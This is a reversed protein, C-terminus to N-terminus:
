AFTMPASANIGQVMCQRQPDLCNIQWSHTLQWKENIGSKGQREGRMSWMYSREIYDTDLLFLTDSSSTSDAISMENEPMFEIVGFDSIFVNSSGESTRPGRGGDTRDSIETAIRATSSFSYESWLRNIPGRNLGKLTTKKGVRTWRAQVADRLKTETLAGATVTDYTWAPITNGTAPYKDIGGGTITGASNVQQVRCDTTGLKNNTWGGTGTQTIPVFDESTIQAELGASQPAAPAGTGSEGKTSPLNAYMRKQTSRELRLSYKMSQYGLESGRGITDSEEASYSVVIRGGSIQTWNGVRFGITSLNGAIDSGEVLAMDSGTGSTTDIADITWENFRNDHSSSQTNAILELDKDRNANMITELVSERVLGNQVAEELQQATLKDYPAAM